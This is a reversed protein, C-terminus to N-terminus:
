TSDGDLWTVNLTNIAAVVALCELESSSYNKESSRLQRSYYAVPMEEERIVSLVAAIGLGSADTQLRYSDSANPITLVCARALPTALM